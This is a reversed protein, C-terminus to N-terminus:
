ANQMRAALSNFFEPYQLVDEMFSCEAIHNMMFKEDSGMSMAQQITNFGNYNEFQQMPPDYSIGYSEIKPVRTRQDDYFRTASVVMHDSIPQPLSEHVSLTETKLTTECNRPRSKPLFKHVIEELLGSDSSERPFFGSDDEITDLVETKHNAGVVGSINNGNGVCCGQFCASVPLLLSSTSSSSNFSGNSAKNHFQPVPSSSVLCSNSSSNLFDRFFHMNLASANNNQTPSSFDGGLNPNNPGFRSVHCNQSQKPIHFPQFLHAETTDPYVFNTRAKVGRMARAACDYACAAEEATDFTGLWRREKSQPDRIEAAYRGWPRRRVGRYRMAGGANATERLSKRTACKKHHNDSTSDHTDPEQTPAMGNLRRLAEEM